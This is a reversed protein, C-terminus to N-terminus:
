KTAQAEKSLEALVLNYKLTMDSVMKTLQEINPKDQSFAADIDHVGKEIAEYNDHSRKEVLPEIPEWTHHFAAFAERAKAIDGAKLAPSVPRLPGRAMRMRAVDDYLPSLPPAKEIMAITEDFRALMGQAEMTLAAINPSAENLGKNIREEYGHELENYIDIYRRNIYVEIGLWAGGYAAFAAKAGAIDGMKLTTLTKELPPRVAKISSVEFRERNQAQVNWGACFLLAAFLVTLSTRM